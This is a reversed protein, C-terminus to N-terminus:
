NNEFTQKMKRRFADGDSPSDEADYCYFSPSYEVQICTPQQLSTLLTQTHKLM